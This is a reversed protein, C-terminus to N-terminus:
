RKTAKERKIERWIRRRELEFSPPGLRNVFISYEDYWGGVFRRGKWIGILESGGPWRKSCYAVFRLEAARYAVRQRRTRGRRRRKQIERTTM